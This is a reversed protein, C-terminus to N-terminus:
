LRAVRLLLPFTVLYEVETWLPKLQEALDEVPNFQHQRIFHKVASWTNLYGLLHELTWTLQIQFSPTELEEFPFPISQYHEDTYRREPDWFSGIVQTYFPTILADIAPTIRLLGYGVIALLAEPVATRRVEAYFQEFNFWHIAQACVILDFSQAAFNTSEAAQVSYQINPAQQAQELQKQSIDTAMVQEFHQALQYAIQGNGTGCDWAKTAKPTHAYLYDFLAKPYQPRYQAYQDSQTSFNDKMPM